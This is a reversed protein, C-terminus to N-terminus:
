IKLKQKFQYKKQKKNLWKLDRYDIHYVNSNEFNKFLKKWGSYKSLYPYNELVEDEFYYKRSIEYSNGGEVYCNMMYSYKEHTKWHEQIVIYIPVDLEKLEQVHWDELKINVYDDAREKDFHKLELLDRKEM